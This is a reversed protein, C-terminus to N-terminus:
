IIDNYRQWEVHNIRVLLKFFFGCMQLNIMFQISGEGDILLYWRSCNITANRQTVM